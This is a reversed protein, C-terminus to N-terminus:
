PELRLVDSLTDAVVTRVGLESELKALPWDDLTVQGAADFMARPVVVADGLETGRLAAVVDQAVLLGSVTVTSGFFLNAVAVVQLRGRALTALEAALARLTPAILTGCVLSLRRHRRRAPPVHRKSRRWDELLRRTLGIGNALQPFGDYSRQSPPAQESLLYLEDAAYVLGVGLRRRYSRQQTGIWQTLRQAEAPTVPRLGCSQYRTLGVPVVGISLVTPHLAALDAVTRELAAGDNLGPTVVIQTHAHIGLSGLRRLQSLVDTPDPAGLLRARLGADSAHVSVYLPSLRQEGIRAWDGESLNTLTVFNGYLFSLRYDDDRVYLTKRLGPPMQHIFCFECRNRCRRIGDFTTDTFELGLDEGYQRMLHVRFAPTGKRVVKLELDEEAAYFRFDIVDHLAHGNISLICDGPRVGAAEALSGAEVRAVSGGSSASM